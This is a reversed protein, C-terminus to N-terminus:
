PDVCTSVLKLLRGPRDNPTYVVGVFDPCGVFSPAFPRISPCAETLDKYARASRRRYCCHEAQGLETPAALTGGGLVVGLLTVHGTAPEAAPGSVQAELAPNLALGQESHQGAVRGAGAPLSVTDNAVNM